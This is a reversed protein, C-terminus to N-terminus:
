YTNVNSYIQSGQNWGGMSVLLKVNPNKNKLAIIDAYPGAM